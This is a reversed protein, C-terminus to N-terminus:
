QTKSRRPLIPQGPCLMWKRSARKIRIKLGLFRDAIGDIASQLKGKNVDAYTGGFNDGTIEVDAIKGEEVTVAAHVDYEGFQM